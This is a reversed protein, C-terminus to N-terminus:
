NATLCLVDISPGCWIRSWVRDMPSSDLTRRGLRCPIGAGSRCSRIASFRNGSSHRGVATQPIGCRGTTPPGVYPSPQAFEWDLSAPNIQRDSLYATKALACLREYNVDRPVLPPDPTEPGPIWIAAASSPLNTVLLSQQVCLPEGSLKAQEETRVIVFRLAADLDAARDM